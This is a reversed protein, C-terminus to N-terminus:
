DDLEQQRKDLAATRRAMEEAAKSIDTMPKAMHARAIESARRNLEQGQIVMREDYEKQLAAKSKNLELMANNHLRDLEAQREEMSKSRLELEQMSKNLNAARQDLGMKIGDSNRADLEQEKKTLSAAMEDLERQGGFHNLLISKGLTRNKASDAIGFASFLESLCEDFVDVTIM